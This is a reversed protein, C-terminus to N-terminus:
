SNPACSSLGYPHAVKAFQAFVNQGTTLITPVAKVREVAAKALDLMRAITAQDGAPAGLARIASIQAEVAPVEVERVYAVIQKEAPSSGLKAGAAKTAANGKVCIANARSVFESKSITSGQAGTTTSSSTSSSGCGAIAIVALPLAVLGAATRVIVRFDTM